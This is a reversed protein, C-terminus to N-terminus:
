LRMTSFFGYLLFLGFGIMGLSLLINFPSYRDPRFYPQVEPNDTYYRTPRIFQLIGLMICLIGFILTLM